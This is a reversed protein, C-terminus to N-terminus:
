IVVEHVTIAAGSGFWGRQLDILTPIAAKQTAEREVGLCRHDDLRRQSAFLRLCRPHKYKFDCSRNLQMRQTNEKDDLAAQKEARNAARPANRAVKAGDHRLLNEETRLSRGTNKTAKTMVGNAELELSITDEKMKADRFRLLFM